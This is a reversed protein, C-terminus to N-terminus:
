KNKRERTTFKLMSRMGQAAKIADGLSKAYHVKEFLNNSIKYREMSIEEIVIYSKYGQVAEKAKQKNNCIVITPYEQLEQIEKKDETM